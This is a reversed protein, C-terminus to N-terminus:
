FDGRSKIYHIRVSNWRAAGKGPATETSAGSPAGCKDYYVSTPRKYALGESKRLGRVAKLLLPLHAGEEVGLVSIGPSVAMTRLVQPAGYHFRAAPLQSSELSREEVGSIGFIKRM